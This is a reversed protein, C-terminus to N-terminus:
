ELVKANVAIFFSTMNYGFFTHLEQKIIFSVNKHTTSLRILFFTIEHNSLDLGNILHLLMVLYIKCNM